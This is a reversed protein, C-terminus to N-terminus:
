RIERTLRRRERLLAALYGGYLAGAGLYAAITYGWTRM